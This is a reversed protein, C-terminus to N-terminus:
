TMHYQAAGYQMLPFLLTFVTQDQICPVAPLVSSFDANVSFDLPINVQLNNSLNLFLQFLFLLSLNLHDKRSLIFVSQCLIVYLIQFLPHSQDILGPRIQHDTNM